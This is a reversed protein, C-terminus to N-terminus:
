KSISACSRSTMARAIPTASARAAHPVVVSRESRTGNANMRGRDNTEANLRETDGRLRSLVRRVFLRSRVEDRRRPEYLHELVREVDWASLVASEKFARTRM